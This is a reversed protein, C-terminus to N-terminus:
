RMLAWRLSKQTALRRMAQAQAESSLRHYVQAALIYEQPREYQDLPQQSLPGLLLAYGVLLTAARYLAKRFERQVLLTGLDALFYAAWPIFFLMLSQRYRSVPVPVIVSVLFVPFAIWLWIHAYLRRKLSLLLGALAPVLIMWYRLGWRVVPSIDAVFYFSLNDAPEYPDCLSLLKLLQLRVFGWVGDSHSDITQRVVAIPHGDTKRLIEGTEKPVRFMRPDSTGANGEIFTEAFRSSSSLLPAKAFHNRVLLPSSALATAVAVRFAIGWYRRKWSFAILVIWVVPDLLLYNERALLGFGLVAGVLWAFRLSSKSPWQVSTLESLAWLLVATIFWGLGDRLLPWAYAYFPAYLSALWFGIWGAFRGAIRATLLGIFVCTGASMLAQIIRMWGLRDLFISLLYAYLPSQQFVAQGGWWHVWQPYPAIARMWSNYPHYPFPNVWGQTRISAAWQLNAHMDSDAYAADFYPLISNQCHILHTAYLLMVVLFACTFSWDPKSVDHGHHPV